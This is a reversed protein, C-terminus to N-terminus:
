VIFTVLFALLSAVSFDNLTSPYVIDGPNSLPVIAYVNLTGYVTVLKFTLAATFLLSAVYSILPVLSKTTPSFVTLTLTIAPSLVSFVYVIM